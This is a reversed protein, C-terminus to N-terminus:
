GRLSLLVIEIYDWRKDVIGDDLSTEPSRESSSVGIREPKVKGDEVFYRCLEVARAISLGFEDPYEMTPIFSKKVSASIVLDSPVGNIVAFLSDLMWLNDKKFEAVDAKFIKDAQIRMVMEEDELSLDIQQNTETRRLYEDVQEYVGHMYDLAAQKSRGSELLAQVEMPVPDTEGLAGDAIGPGGENEFVGIDVMPVMQSASGVESLVEELEETDFSGFSILLVFFTMLLTVLDGFTTLWAPDEVWLIKVGKKKAM